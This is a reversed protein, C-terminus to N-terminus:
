RRRTEQLLLVTELHGTSGSRSIKTVIFYRGIYNTIKFDCLNHSLPSKM